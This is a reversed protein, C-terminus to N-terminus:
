KTGGEEKDLNELFAILKNFVRSIQTAAERRQSTMSSATGQCLSPPRFEKLYDSYQQIHSLFRQSICASMRELWQHYQKDLAGAVADSMTSGHQNCTEIIEGAHKILLELQGDRIKSTRRALGPNRRIKAVMKEIIPIVEEGKIRHIEAMHSNVSIWVKDPPLQCILEFDDIASQDKFVVSKRSELDVSEHEYEDVEARMLRSHEENERVSVLCVSELPITRLTQNLIKVDLDCSGDNYSAEVHVRDATEEEKAKREAEKERRREEKDELREQRMVIFKHRDWFWNFIGFALGFVAVVLGLIALIRAFSDTHGTPTNGTAECGSIALLLMAAFVLSKM